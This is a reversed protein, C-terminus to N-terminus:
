EEEEYISVNFAQTIKDIRCVYTTDDQCTLAIGLPLVTQNKGLVFVASGSDGQQFFPKDKNISKIEYCNYFKYLPRNPIYGGIKTTITNNMLLGETDGTIRNKKIVKTTGDFTIQSDDVIPMPSLAVILCLLIM